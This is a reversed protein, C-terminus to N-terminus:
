RLISFLVALDRLSAGSSACCLVGAGRRSTRGCEDLQHDIAIPVLLEHARQITGGPAAIDAASTMGLRRRGRLRRYEPGGAKGSRWSQIELRPCREESRAAPVLRIDDVRAKVPQTRGIVTHPRSAASSL